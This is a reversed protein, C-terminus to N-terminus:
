GSSVGHGVPIVFNPAALRQRQFVRPPSGVPSTAVGLPQAQTEDAQIRDVLERGTAPDPLIAERQRVMPRETEDPLPMRRRSEDLDFSQLAPGRLPWPGNVLLLYDVELKVPDYGIWPALESSRAASLFLVLSLALFASSSWRDQKM